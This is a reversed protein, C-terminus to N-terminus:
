LILYVLLFALTIVGITIFMPKIMMKVAEIYTRFCERFTPRQSLKNSGYRSDKRPLGHSLASMDFISSGDDIYITKEKKKKKSM